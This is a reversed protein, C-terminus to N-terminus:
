EGGAEYEARTGGRRWEGGRARRVAAEQTEIQMDLDALWNLAIGAIQTLEHEVSDEHLGRLALSLELVEEALMHFDPRRIDTAHALANQYVKRMALAIHAKEAM